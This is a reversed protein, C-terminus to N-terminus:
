RINYIRLINCQAVVAEVVAVLSRKVAVAVAHLLIM